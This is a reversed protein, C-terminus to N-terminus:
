DKRANHVLNSVGLHALGLGGAAALFGRPSRVAKLLPDVYMRSKTTAAGLAKDGELLEKLLKELALAKEPRGSAASGAIAKRLSAIGKTGHETRGVLKNFFGPLDKDAGAPMNARHDRLFDMIHTAAPNVTKPGKGGAGPTKAIGVTDHDGGWMFEGISKNRFHANRAESLGTLGSAGLVGVGAAAGVSPSPNKDAPAMLKAPSSPKYGM